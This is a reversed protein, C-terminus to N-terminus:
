IDFVPFVVFFKILSLLFPTKKFFALWLSNFGITFFRGNMVMQSGSERSIITMETGSSGNSSLLEKFRM